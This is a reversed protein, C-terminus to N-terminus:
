GLKSKIGPRLYLQRAGASILTEKPDLEDLHFRAIDFPFAM